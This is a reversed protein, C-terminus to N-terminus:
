PLLDSLSVAGSGEIFKEMELSSCSVKLLSLIDKFSLHENNEILLACLGSIYAAACSTGSYVTYPEDLMQPYLKRGNKESIYKTNSNLSCIDVCAACLDPKKLKGCPGASSFRFPQTKSSTDIGSITLCNQLLALGRISDQTNENNGSPVVVVINNEVAKDFLKSFLNLVTYDNDIIEFPLCIVRINNEDSMNLLTEISYLLTSIFAKGVKNFAKICYLNSNEAIGKYKHKSSLGSGAIIGSIFTGHGNDDYPYHCDNILDLFFRIKNHPNILDTHPYVGSDVIGIGVNLGTLKYKCEYNIGNARLVGKGCLIAYNDFCIYSVDPYEILRNISYTSLSASICKCTVISYFVKGGYSKIKHEVKNGLNKYIVLVRFKKYFKKNMAIKLNPDLKNKISFM